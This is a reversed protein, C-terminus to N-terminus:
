TWAISAERPPPPPTPRPFVLPRSSTGSSSARPSARRPPRPRTRRLPSISWASAFPNRRSARGGRSSSADVGRRFADDVDDAGGSSPFATFCHSLRDARADLTTPRPPPPPHLRRGVADFRAVLPLRARPCRRFNRVLRTASTEFTSARVVVQVLLVVPYVTSVRAVCPPPSALRTSSIRASTRRRRRSPIRKLGGRLELAFPSDSPSLRVLRFQLM